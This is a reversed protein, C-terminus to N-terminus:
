LCLGLFQFSHDFGLICSCLGEIGHTSTRPLSRLHCDQSIQDANSKDGVYAVTAGFLRDLETREIGEWDDDEDFLLEKAGDGENKIGGGTQNDCERQLSEIEESKSVGAENKGFEIEINAITETENRKDVLIKGVAINEKCESAGGFKDFDQEIFKGILDEVDVERLVEPKDIKVDDDSSGGCSLCRLDVFKKKFAVQYGCGQAGSM